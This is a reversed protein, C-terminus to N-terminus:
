FGRLLTSYVRDDPILISELKDQEYLYNILCFFDGDGTVIIAKDYNNYQKMTELVLEADCNGKVTEEYAVVPKFINIFGAKEFFKYMPEFEPLYGSFIYAQTVKYKDTLFKRFRFYDIKWGLRKLARYMNNNDIFAYNNMALDEVLLDPSEISFEKNQWYRGVIDEFLRMQRCVDGGLRALM